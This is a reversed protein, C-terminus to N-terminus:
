AEGPRDRKSAGRRPPIALLLALVPLLLCYTSPEPVPAISPAFNFAVAYTESPTVVGSTGSLPAGGNKLVVLDYDGPALNQVYLQEVNDVTSDSVAVQAGTSANFLYLDLNNIYTQYAQREWVLTSTLTFASATASTLDFLYHNSEATYSGSTFATTISALDWGQDPVLAGSSIAAVSGSTAASLNDEGAHLNEYSNYVNVIGAGYTPDLPASDTHTWGAPKVAGNLLLAKLTRADSADAATGPGADGRLGAQLLVAAAGTVYPTSYSTASAPATIDPKSRGDYSPGVSSSGGYAGVGIGNYDDGPSDDGGGNGIGSIFLTNHLAAYNDYMQNYQAQQTSTAGSFVFSQNVISAAIPINRSVIGSFFYDAEYNYVQAIGPAIGEPDSTDNDGYLNDGVSDAHGSESGVSNPFGTGTVGSESVYIFLSPPQGVMSPNVEYGDSGSFIAEPQAIIVGSGTLTPDVARLAQIGMPDQALAAAAACLWVVCFLHTTRRPTM